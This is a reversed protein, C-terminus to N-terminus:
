CKDSVITDIPMDPLTYGYAEKIFWEMKENMARVIEAENLKAAVEYMKNTESSAAGAEVMIDCLKNMLAQNNAIAFLGDMFAKAKEMDENCDPAISFGSMRVRAMTRNGYMSFMYDFSHDHFYKSGVYETAKDNKNPVGIEISVDPTWHGVALIPSVESVLKQLEDTAKRMDETVKRYGEKRLEKTKEYLGKITPFLAKTKEGANERIVSYVVNHLLQNYIREKASEITYKGMDSKMRRNRKDSACGEVYALFNFSSSEVWSERWKTFDCDMSIFDEFKELAALRIILNEKQTM